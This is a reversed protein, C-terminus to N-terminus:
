ERVVAVGFLQRDLAGNLRVWLSVFMEMAPAASLAGLDIVNERKWGFDELLGLVEAKAEDHDGCMLATTDAPLAAPDVMLIRHMTNLAKVVRLDPFARQIEQALSNDNAYTLVWSHNEDFSGANAIDLLTKGALNEAGAAQLADLSGSGDTANVLLEGFEAAEHIGGLSAGDGAGALWEELEPKGPSRAGLKVEHGARLAGDAITRGVGGSGIIGIQM